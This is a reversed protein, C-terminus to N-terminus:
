KILIQHLMLGGLHSVDESAGLLADLNLIDSLNRGVAGGLSSAFLLFLLRMGTGGLLYWTLRDSNDVLRSSIEGFSM